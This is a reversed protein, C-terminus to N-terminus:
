NCPWTIALATIFGNAGPDQWNKPNATAWNLFAQRIQDNSVFGDAKMCLYSNPTVDHNYSLVTAVGLGVGLCYNFDRTTSNDKCARVFDGVTSPGDGGAGWATPPVLLGVALVLASISKQLMYGEM